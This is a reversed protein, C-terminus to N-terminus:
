SKKTASKKSVSKKPRRPRTFKLGSLLDSVACVKYDVFGRNVGDLRIDEQTFDVSQKPTRKPHIIWFSAPQPLHATAHDYAASADSLSHVVYLALKTEPAIRRTLTAGPPLPDLLETISASDGIIPVPMNETIGLKHVLNSGSFRQMHPTPQIPASPASAIARHIAPALQRNWEAYTADPMENRLRSVKEELGGVFVIPIPRTSKSNRLVIAMERGQSPLRDLDIVVADVPNAKFHGVIGSASRMPDANVTFGASRLLKSREPVLAAKFSLLRIRPKAAM